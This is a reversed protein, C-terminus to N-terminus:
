SKMVKQISRYRAMACRRRKLQFAPSPRNWDEPSSYHYIIVPYLDLALRKDSRVM